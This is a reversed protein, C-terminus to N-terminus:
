YLDNELHSTTVTAYQVSGTDNNMSHQQSLFNILQLSFHILQFLKLSLTLLQRGLQLHQWRDTQRSTVTTM